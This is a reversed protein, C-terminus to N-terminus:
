EVAMSLLVDEGSHTFLTSKLVKGQTETVVSAATVLASDCADCLILKEKAEFYWKFGQISFFLKKNVWMPFRNRRPFFIFYLKVM